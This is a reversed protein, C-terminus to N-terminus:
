LEIDMQKMESEIRNINKDLEPILQTKAMTVLDTLAKVGQQRTELAGTTAKTHNLKVGTVFKETSFLITPSLTLATPSEVMNNWIFLSNELPFVAFTGEAKKAKELFAETALVNQEVEHKLSKQLYYANKQSVINEFQVAQKFGQTAALYVGLVTALLIFVQSIWFSPKKVESAPSPASVAVAETKVKSTTTM